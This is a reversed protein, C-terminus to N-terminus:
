PAGSGYDAVRETHSRTITQGGIAGFVPLDLVPVDVSATATVESGPSLAGAWEVTVDADLGYGAVLDAAAADGIGIGSRPDLAVARAAEAAADRVMTQREVWTPVTVVLLGFPILVLGVVFPVEIAVAGREVRRRRLRM